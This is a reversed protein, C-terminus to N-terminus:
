KVRSFHGGREPSEIPPRPPLPHEFIKVKDTLEFSWNALDM